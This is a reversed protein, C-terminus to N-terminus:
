SNVRVLEEELYHLHQIERGYAIFAADDGIALYVREYFAADKLSRWYLVAWLMMNM